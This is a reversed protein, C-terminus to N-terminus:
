EKRQKKKQRAAEQKEKPIVKIGKKKLAKIKEQEMLKEDADSDFAAPEAEGEAAEDDTVGDLELEAAAATNGNTAALAAKAPKGVKFKAVYFGDM